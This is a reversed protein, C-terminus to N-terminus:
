LLNGVVNSVLCNNLFESDGLSAREAVGESRELYSGM